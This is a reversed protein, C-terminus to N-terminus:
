GLFAREAAPRDSGATGSAESPGSRLPPALPGPRRVPPARVPPAASAERRATLLVFWANAGAETRNLVHAVQPVCMGVVMRAPHFQQGGLDDPGLSTWTKEADGPYETVYNGFRGWDLRQERLKMFAVPRLFPGSASGDECVTLKLLADDNAYHTGWPALVTTPLSRKDRPNAEASLPLGACCAAGPPAQRPCALGPPRLRV